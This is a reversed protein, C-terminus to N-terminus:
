EAAWKLLAEVRAKAKAEAEAQMSEVSKRNTKIGSRLAKIQRREFHMKGTARDIKRVLGLRLAVNDASLNSYKLPQFFAPRPPLPPIVVVKVPM